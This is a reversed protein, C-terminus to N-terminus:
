EQTKQSTFMSIYKLYKERNEPDSAALKNFIEIAKETQGQKGYIIGMGVTVVEGDSQFGPEFGEVTAEDTIHVKEEEPQGISSYDGIPTDEYKGTDDFPRNGKNLRHFDENEASIAGENSNTSEDPDGREVSIAGDVSIISGASVTSRGFGENEVSIVGDRSIISGASITNIGEDEKSGSGDAMASQPNETKEFEHDREDSEPIVFTSLKVEEESLDTDSLRRDEEALETFWASLEADAFYKEAFKLTEEAKDANNLDLYLTLM